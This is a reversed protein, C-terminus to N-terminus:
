AFINVDAHHTVTVMCPVFPGSMRASAKKDETIAKIPQTELFCAVM